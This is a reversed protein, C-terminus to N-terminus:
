RDFYFYIKSKFNLEDSNNFGIKFFLCVEGVLEGRVNM